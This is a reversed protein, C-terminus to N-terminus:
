DVGCPKGGPSGIEINAVMEMARERSIAERCWRGELWYSDGVVVLVEEGSLPIRTTMEEIKRRREEIRAGEDEYLKGISRDESGRHERKYERSQIKHCPKCASQYGDSSSRNPYFEEEMDKEQKCKPCRKKPM